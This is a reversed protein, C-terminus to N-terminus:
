AKYQRGGKRRCVKVLYYLAFVLLMATVGGAADLWVDAIAPGRASFIQITEDVFGVTFIFGIINSIDRRVLKHGCLHYLTLELGLVFFEAFHALKRVTHSTLELPIGITQLINQLFTHVTGSQNLSTNKGVISHSFIFLVTAIILVLLLIRGVKKKNM